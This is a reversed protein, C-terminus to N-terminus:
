GLKGTFVRGEGDRAELTIEKAAPGPKAYFLHDTPSPDVWTHRKPLNPGEFLRVAEPDRGLRRDMLGKKLGDEYWLVTWRSDAGWINAIFEDPHRPDAGVPHITMQHDIPKGTTKYQWTLGSGNVQYVSYGNPTGDGCINATWWAGCVAGNVHIEVGGDKLYESEHMHGSLIYSRFPELLRYLLERNTIVEANDPSKKGSRKYEECYAPIHMFVVVTKGREVHALDARLWDLQPQDLYGIYSGFWFIDDLVVYHIEGRNFSYYTPGFHRRFTASSAEDTRAQREVDHNGLVQFFPISMEKVGQEYEPFYQLRDFMIDGCAVGFLSRDALQRAMAYVDPVTERRFRSVDAEDLTQPDALQFFAHMTDSHPLQAIDFLATADGNTRPEIPQYFRATGTPNQAIAYGPPITMFVFDRTSVSHLDFTGDSGTKVVSLGDSIAVNPVGKGHSRVAGRIRVPDIGSFLPMLPRYPDALIKEAFLLTATSLGARKLFLRRSQM